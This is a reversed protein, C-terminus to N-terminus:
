GRIIAKYMALEAGVYCERVHQVVYERGAAIIRDFKKPVMNTIQAAPIVCLADGQEASGIFEDARLGGIKGYFNVSQTGRRLTLPRGFVNLVSNCLSRM